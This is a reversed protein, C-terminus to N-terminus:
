PRKERLADLVDRFRDDILSALGPDRPAVITASLEGPGLRDAFGVSGGTIKLTAGIITARFTGAGLSTDPDMFGGGSYVGMVGGALIAWRVTMSSATTAIPTAGPRPVIFLHIHVIQGTLESLDAAADLDERALDTLYIDATSADESAFAALTMRPRLTEGTEVSRLTASSRLACGAQGLVAIFLILLRM